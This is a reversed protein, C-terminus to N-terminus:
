SHDREFGMIILRNEITNTVIEIQLLKKMQSYSVIYKSKGQTQKKTQKQNEKNKTQKTKASRKKGLPEWVKFTPTVWLSLELCQRTEVVCM